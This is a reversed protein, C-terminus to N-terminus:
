INDCFTGLFTYVGLETYIMREAKTVDVLVLETVKKGKIWRVTMGGDTSNTVLRLDGSKTSYVQGSPDDAVDVLPRVKLGGKRGVLVRYGKTGYARALRDVYYYVGRDDRALLHPDRITGPTKFTAADLVAKAKAGTLETLARVADNGCSRRYSGDELRQIYAPRFGDVRPSWTAVMWKEGDRSRRPSNQEYLAKGEGYWVRTVKAGLTEGYVVYTGGRADQFVRLQDRIDKVDIAKPEPDKMVPQATAAPSLLAVACFVWGPARM